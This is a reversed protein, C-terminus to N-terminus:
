RVGTSGFGGIGRSTTELRDTEVLNLQLAPAIVGQAIRDGRQISFPATGLNILLVSVPGTYDSDITGPSNLVTVGHKVALGSRPRIQMEYGSPLGVAFGTSVLLRAGPVLVAPAAAAIAARLDFGAAGSTSYAPIPLDTQVSSGFICEDAVSSSCAM